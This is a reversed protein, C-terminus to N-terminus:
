RCQACVKGNVTLPRHAPASPGTTDTKSVAPGKAPGTRTQVTGGVLLAVSVVTALVIAVAVLWMGVLLPSAAPGSTLTSARTAM